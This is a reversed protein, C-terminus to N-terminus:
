LSDWGDILHVKNEPVEDDISPGKEELLRGAQFPKGRKGDFVNKEMYIRLDHWTTSSVMVKEPDIVGKKIDWGLDRYFNMLVCVPSGTEDVRFNPLNVVKM